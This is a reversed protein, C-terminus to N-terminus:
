RARAELLRDFARDATDRSAMYAQALVLSGLLLMPVLLWVLLRRYLSPLTASENM